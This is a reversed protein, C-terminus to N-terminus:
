GFLRCRAVRSRTEASVSRAAQAASDVHASLGSYLTQTLPSGEEDSRELVRTVSQVAGISSSAGMAVVAPRLGGEFAAGRLAVGESFTSTSEM